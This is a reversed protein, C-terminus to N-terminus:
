QRHCMGFEAVVSRGDRLRAGAFEGQFVPRRQAADGAQGGLEGVDGLDFVALQPQFPHHQDTHPGVAGGGVAPGAHGLQGRQGLRGAGLHELPQDLAAVLGVRRGVDARALRGLQAVHHQGGAGVGHDAVAFQGRRLQGRQFLRHLDLHDVAGRQDEIDEGLVGGAPLALRVHRQGLHLVHQRPQAAPALRHGPLGTAAGAAAPSAHPQATGTLGLDFGIPAADALPHGLQAALDLVHLLDAVGLAAAPQVAVHGRDGDDAVGVGALGAQGVRQGPRAHQHLVGQEGGQLGGGPAGFPVVAPREHEGVGDAEDPVQGGLQDLREAGGQLLDDVGIQQHVDDVAGVDVRQGLDVGHVLHDGLDDGVMVAIRRGLQQHHVLGVGGTVHRQGLQPVGQGARHEHGRGGPVADVAQAAPDGLQRNRGLGGHVHHDRIM